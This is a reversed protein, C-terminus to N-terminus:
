KDIDMISRKSLLKSIIWAVGIAAFMILLPRASATYRAELHGPIHVLFPYFLLVSFVISRFRNERNFVSIIAGFIGFLFVFYSSTLLAVKVLIPIEKGYNSTNWLLWTNQIVHKAYSKPDAAIRDIAAAGFVKNSAIRTGLNPYKVPNDPPTLPPAGISRNLKIVQHLYGSKALRPTIEGSYFQNFDNLELEEQWSATYLSNGVAAAFPVPSFKGFNALNWLAYPTLVVASAALLTLSRLISAEISDGNNRSTLVLIIAIAVPLLLIDTRFLIAIGLIVGAGAYSLHRCPHKILLYAVGSFCLMVWSETMINSAYAASFPYIAALFRFVIRTINSSIMRDLLFLSALYAGIQLGVISPISLRGVEHLLWLLVPYGPPRLSDPEWGSPTLEGYHGMGLNQALLLYSPSDGAMWPHLSYAVLLTQAVIALALFRLVFLNM